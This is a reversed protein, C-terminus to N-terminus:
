LLVSPGPGRAFEGIPPLFDRLFPLWNIGPIYEGFALLITKSYHPKTLRGVEDLAFLSNTIQKQNRDVGYAGTVLPIKTQAVFEQLAGFQDKSGYVPDIFAPFAAEPWVILDVPRTPQSEIARTSLRFYKEIITDRFGTGLEAASKEENGINGQVLLVHLLSDPTALRHQLWFGGANMAAFLTCFGALLGWARKMHRSQWAFHCVINLGITLTSLGSFGIWEALHYLPLGSAYWSYGFNWDFLTFSYRDGLATIVGMILMSLRNSYQLQRQIFFWLIGALPIYLQALAAFLLLGLIALPWPLHAFEHLTHAVWNFGILTLVFGTLWGAVFIRRFDNQRSWYIWLPVFCFCSAWPSFPIFSTGILIGSLIPLLSM